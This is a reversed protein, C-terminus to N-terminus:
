DIHKPQHQTKAYEDSSTLIKWTTNPFASSPKVPLHNKFSRKCTHLVHKMHVRMSTRAKQDRRTRAEERFLSRRWRDPASSHTNPHEGGTATPDARWGQVAVPPLLRGLVFGVSHTGHRGPQPSGGEGTRVHHTTARRPLPSGPLQRRADESRQSLAPSYNAM